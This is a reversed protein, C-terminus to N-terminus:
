RAPQALVFRNGDPDQAHVVLVSGIDEIEGPAGGLETLRERAVAVDDVALMFLPGHDSRGIGRAYRHGDLVVPVADPGPPHLDHILGAHSTRGAPVGLVASWFAIARSMDTVHVFVGTLRQGVGAAQATM